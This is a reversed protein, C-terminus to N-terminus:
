TPAHTSGHPLHILESNHRPLLLSLKSSSTNRLPLGLNPIASASGDGLNFYMLASTIRGLNCRYFMDPLQLQYGTYTISIM